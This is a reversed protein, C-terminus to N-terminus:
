IVRDLYERTRGDAGRRFELHARTLLQERTQRPIEKAAEALLRDAEDLRGQRIAIGALTTRIDVGLGPETDGAAEALAEHLSQRAPELRGLALQAQGLLLLVEGRHVRPEDN